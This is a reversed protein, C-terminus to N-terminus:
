PNPFWRSLGLENFILCIDKGTLAPQISPNVKIQVDTDCKLLESNQTTTNEIRGSFSANKLTEPYRFVGIASTAMAFVGVVVVISRALLSTASSRRFMSIWFTVGILGLIPSYREHFFTNFNGYRGVSIVLSAGFMAGLSALPLLNKKLLFLLALTVLSVSIATLLLSSAEIRTGLEELHVIRSPIILSVPQAIWATCAAVAWRVIPLLDDLIKTLEPSEGIATSDIPPFMSALVSGLITAGAGIMLCLGSGILRRRLNVTSYAIFLCSALLLSPVFNSSLSLWASLFYIGLLLTSPREKLAERALLLAFLVSLFWAIQFAWQADYTVGSSTFWVVLLSIKLWKLPASEDVRIIGFFIRAVAYALLLNTILLPFYWGRFIWVQALFAFRGLPFFHGMHNVFIGSLPQQAASQLITWEDWWFFLDPSFVVFTVLLCLIILFETLVKRADSHGLGKETKRTLTNKM